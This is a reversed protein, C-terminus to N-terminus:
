KGAEGQGHPRPEWCESSVALAQELTDCIPWLSDLNVIHLVERAAPSLQCLALTGQLPSLHRWVLVMLEIMHSGFYDARSMEFIVKKLGGARVDAMMCDAEKRVDTAALSGISETATVILADNCRYTLFSSTFM